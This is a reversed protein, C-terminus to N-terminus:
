RLTNISVTPVLVMGGLFHRVITSWTYFFISARSCPHMAVLTVHHLYINFGIGGSFPQFTHDNKIFCYVLLPYIVGSRCPALAVAFWLPQDDLLTSKHCSLAPHQAGAGPPWFRYAWYHSVL